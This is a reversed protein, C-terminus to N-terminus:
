LVTGANAGFVLDPRGWNQQLSNAVDHYFGAHFSLQLVQPAVAPQAAVSQVPQPPQSTHYAGQTDSPALQVHADTNLAHLKDTQEQYVHSVAPSKHMLATDIALGNDQDICSPGTISNETIACNGQEKTFTKCTGDLNNPVSPGIFHIRISQYPMLQLLELFVPWQDLEKQAGVCEM